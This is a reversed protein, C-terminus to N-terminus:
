RVGMAYRGAPTRLGKYVSGAVQQLGREFDTMTVYREGNFEVVPGTTINITPSGPSGEMIGAGRQGALYNAATAAMKSEPIIYEPQGGEGVLALTPKTVIGGEAFAPVPIRPLRSVNPFPPTPLRNYGDVLFNIADIAVNTGQVIARMFSRYLGQIQGMFVSWNTKLRETTFGSSKLIVNDAQTAAKVAADYAAQKVKVADQAAIAVAKEAQAAKDQAAVSELVSTRWADQRQTAEISAASFTVVGANASQVGSKIADAASNMKVSLDQTIGNMTATNSYANIMNTAINQAGKASVGIADSALKQQLAMGATEIKTKYQAELGAAQYKGIVQQATIQVGLGYVVQNQAQLAADLQQRKKNAEEATKSQLIQLRGEALIEYGKIVASSQQLKLKETELAISALGSQYELQAATVETRFLALTIDYRKQATTANEYERQLRVQQLGNLQQEAGIRASIISGVATWNQVQGAIARQQNQLAVVTATDQELVEKSLTLQKQRETTVNVAEIAISREGEILKLNTALNEKDQKGKLAGFKDLFDKKKDDFEASIRALKEQRDAELNILQGRVSTDATRTKDIDLLKKALLASRLQTDVTTNLEASLKETEENIGGYKERVKEAVDKGFVLTTFWDKTGRYTDGILSGIMSWGKAATGLLTLVDRLAPVFLNLVQTAAASISGVAGDWANKLQDSNNAIDEAAGASLGIQKYVEAAIVARAEDAKGARLLTTVQYDLEANVTIVSDRLADVNLTNAAKSLDAIKVYTEDLLKGVASLAIGLAMGMPGAAAGMAGGMFGGFGGGLVAGPGAGFLLPFGAGMMADAIGPKGLLGAIGGAGKKVGGPPMAPGQPGFGANAMTGKSAEYAAIQRLKQRIRELRDLRKNEIGEITQLGRGAANLMASDPLAKVRSLKEAQQFIGAYLPAFQSLPRVQEKLAQAYRLAREAEDDTRMGGAREVPGTILSRAGGSMAPSGPTAAPLLLQAPAATRNLAAVEKAIRQMRYFEATQRNAAQSGANTREIFDTQAKNLKAIQAATEAAAAAQKDLAAQIQLAKADLKSNALLRQTEELRSLGSQVAATEKAVLKKAAAQEALLKLQRQVAESYKKVENAKNSGAVVALKDFKEQAASTNLGQAQYAAIDKAFSRLQSLAAARARESRSVANSYEVMRGLETALAQVATVNGRDKFFKFAAEVEKIQGQFQKLSTAGSSSAQKLRREYLDIAANLKSQQIIEQEKQKIQRQQAQAIKELEAAQKQLAVLPKESIYFSDKIKNIRDYIGDIEDQIKKLVGQNNVILDIVATYSAV